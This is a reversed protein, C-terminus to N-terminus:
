HVHIAENASTEKLFYAALSTAIPVALILAISGVLTRVIEEAVFESNIIVWLPQTKNLSFLLFLPLSAGAYALALTNILAAIHEHGVKLGRKYLEKHTLSPDARKIEAVAAVQSTTVDDLVGLTGIIIGGLLLGKLNIQTGQLAQLYFAEETGLGFLKGAMVLLTALGAALGLTIFTSILAITTRRSIGHALYISVLAIVFSGTLIILLTNQGALLNPIIFNSLVLISFALGLMSTFGKLRGFAVAFLFFGVLIYILPPLRYKDAVYYFEGDPQIIKGLVVTEGKEIKPFNSTEASTISEAEVEKGKEPGNLIKLKAVEINQTVEPGVEVDKKYVDLVEATYFQEPTTLEPEVTEPVASEQAFVLLPLVVLGIVLTVVYRKM